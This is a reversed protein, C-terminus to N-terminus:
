YNGGFALSDLAQVANWIAVGKWRTFPEDQAKTRPLVRLWRLPSRWLGM